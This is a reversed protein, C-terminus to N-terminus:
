QSLEVIGDDVVPVPVVAAAVPRAGGGRARRKTAPAVAAAAAIGDAASPWLEEGDDGGGVPVLMGGGLALFDFDGQSLAAIDGVSPVTGFVSGGDGGGAGGLDAGGGGAPVSPGAALGPAPGYAVGSVARPPGGVGDDDPEGIFFPNVTWFGAPWEGAPVDPPSSSSWALQRFYPEWALSGPFPLGVQRVDSVRGAVVVKALDVFQWRDASMKAEWEPRFDNVFVVVHPSAFKKHVSVYKTSHLVGDKLKEATTWIHDSYEAQARTVDFVVIREMNYMYAMDAGKGSLSTATPFGRQGSLGFLLRLLASKGCGGEPDRIVVVHRDDAPIVLFGLLERQWSYLKEWPLLNTLKVNNRAFAAAAKELGGPIRLAGPFETFVADEIERATAGALICLLSIM